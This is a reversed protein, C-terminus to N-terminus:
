TPFARTARTTMARNPYLQPWAFHTGLLLLAHCDLVAYYGAPGGIIGTMGVKYPNDYEVFDKGVSMQAMPKLLRDATAVVQDDAGECGAGAYITIADSKNLIAVIEDLDADSPRLLPIPDHMAYPLEHHAAANAVDAPMVVVAVGRKTSLAASCSSRLGSWAWVWPARRRLPKRSRRLRAMVEVWAPAAAM